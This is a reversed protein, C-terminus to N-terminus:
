PVEAVPEGHYPEGSPDVRGFCLFRAPGRHSLSEVDVCVQAIPQDAPYALAETGATHGDLELAMLENRPDYPWLRAERGDAGRGVVHVYALDIVQPGDCRNGFSYEIVAQDGLDPRRAVALDLCGVRTREGLFVQGGSAYSGAQYGCGALAGAVAVAVAVIVVPRAM